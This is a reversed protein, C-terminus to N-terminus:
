GLQNCLKVWNSVSIDEARALPNIELQELIAQLQQPSIISKLNNRLMKRRNAFGLKVLKELLEPSNVTLPFPRPILSIIASDVKPPPSFAKAPVISILECHALYQGRVSLAGFTKSGAKACLREAIEKQVLLIIREYQGSPHSISGLLKELIPGTINYPINAVVKNPLPTVFSSLDLHLIDGQILILNEQQHFKQQLKDFLARDVEVATVQKVRSILQRTLIGTGPGIELVEDNAKLAAAEIITQLAEQSKLWHQAFQKRPKM